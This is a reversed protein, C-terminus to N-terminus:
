PKMEVNRCLYDATSFGSLSARAGHPIVYNLGGEQGRLLHLAINVKCSMKNLRLSLLSIWSVADNEALGGM